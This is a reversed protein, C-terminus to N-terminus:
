KENTYLKFKYIYEEVAATVLHTVPKGVAIRNRIFTSSINTTILDNRDEGRPFVIFRYKKRLEEANKWKHFDEEQDSGIIWHFEHEPYLATLERLTDITYSVKKRKIEIDSAKINGDEILKCMALRHDAPSLQKGFAHEYCPIFWVEDMLFKEKMQVAMILHGLHPPDFSGGLLAIKM